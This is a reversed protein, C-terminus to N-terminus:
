ERQKKSEQPYVGRRKRKKATPRRAWNEDETTVIAETTSATSSMSLDHDQESEELEEKTLEKSTGPQPESPTSASSFEIEKPELGALTCIDGNNVINVPDSNSKKTWKCTGVTPSKTASGPSKKKSKPCPKVAPPPTAVKFIDALRRETRRMEDKAIRRINAECAGLEALKADALQSRLKEVQRTTDELTKRWRIERLKYNDKFQQCRFKELELQSSYWKRTQCPGEPNPVCPAIGNNALTAIQEIAETGQAAIDRIAVLYDDHLRIGNEIVRRNREQDREKLSEIDMDQDRIIEQCQRVLDEKKRKDKRVQEVTTLLRKGITLLRGTLISTEGDDDWTKELKRSQRELRRITSRVEEENESAYYGEEDSLAETASDSDSSSPTTVYEKSAM